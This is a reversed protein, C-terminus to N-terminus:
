IQTAWRICPDDRYVRLTLRHGRRVTLMTRDAASSRAFALRSAPPARCLNHAYRPISEASLRLLRPLYSGIMRNSAPGVSM